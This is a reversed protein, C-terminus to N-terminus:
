ISGHGLNKLKRKWIFFQLIAGLFLPIFLPPIQIPFGNRLTAM